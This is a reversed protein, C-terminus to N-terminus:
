GFLCGKDLAMTVGEGIAKEDDVIYISYPIM